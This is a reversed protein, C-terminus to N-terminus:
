TYIEGDVLTKDGNKRLKRRKRRAAGLLDESRIHGVTSGGRFELVGKRSRRVKTGGVLVSGRPGACCPEPGILGDHERVVKVFFIDIALAASPPKDRLRTSELQV